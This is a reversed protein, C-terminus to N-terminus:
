EIWVSYYCTTPDWFSIERFTFTLDRTEGANLYIAQQKTWYSSGQSIKAWVTVKGEGGRNYLSVDVYGVFDLGEMGTRVSKSTIEVTPPTVINKIGSNTKDSCGSLLGVIIVMLAILLIATKRM